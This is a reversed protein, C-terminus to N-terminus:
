HPITDILERAGPRLLAVSAGLGAPDLPGAWEHANLVTKGDPTFVAARLSLEGTPHTGAYGAVPSDCHGRLTHLLAREATAQRATDPHDPAALVDLPPM